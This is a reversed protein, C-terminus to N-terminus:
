LHEEYQLDIGVISWKALADWQDGTVNVMRRQKSFATELHAQCFYGVKM